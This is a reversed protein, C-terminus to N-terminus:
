VLQNWAFALTKLWSEAAGATAHRFYNAFQYTRREVAKFIREIANKRGHTEHRFEYGYHTLAAHLWPAGDVLFETDELQHREILEEVSTM